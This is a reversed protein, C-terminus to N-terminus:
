LAASRTSSEGEVRITYRIFGDSPTLSEYLRRARFNDERTLWYVKTWGAARARDVLFEILRRGVGHSRFQPHVYLDELLCHPRDSWTSLSTIYNAFGAPKSDVTALLCGIPESPDLIRRWTEETVSAPVTAEYFKNYNAWMERWAPEDSAGAERVEATHPVGAVSVRARATVDERIATLSRRQRGTADLNGDSLWAEFASRNVPWDHDLMAYWATDRNRGKVVMNQRFIGEFAFGFRSAARRSRQNAADCKWELRRYGLDDFVFRALLFIAESAGPTRQLGVGFWIHGIEIVGHEPEMRLYSAIGAPLGTARDIIAFFVDSPSDACRTLYARFDSLSEFPGYFLYRWLVPDASNHSADWLPQAHAEANVPVLDVRKGALSQGRAPVGVPSWSALDREISKASNM